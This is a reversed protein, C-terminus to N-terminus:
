QKAPAAPPQQPKQLAGLPLYPVAGGKQDLIIKDMGSYVREMTELFLRERTVDPAKRYEGLVKDFRAAQGRAEAVTAERYGEAARTLRAADANAEPIIRSEYTRAQTIVQDAEQGAANIDRFSDIVPPPVDLTRMNVNNVTVGSSFEDLVRQMLAKVDAEVQSRSAPGSVIKRLESRGVVERIASEAVARITGRPDKLNFVFDEPKDAQIVWFVTFDIDVIREDGTLMLSDERAPAGRRTDQGTAGIQMTNVDTVRVKQVAGIPAPWNYRLGPLTKSEYKGFVMNIGVENPRVTYLGTLAWILLLILIVFAIGRAGFGGGAGGGGPLINRLQEQGRRLLDELNPPGGNNGGQPGQGWPGQNKPQWPGGGQNSWPM